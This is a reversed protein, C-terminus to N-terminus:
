TYPDTIERLSVLAERLQAARTTGLHATWEAEVEAVVAAAIPITQAGREAIQVLRARADTPDPVRRVDGAVNLARLRRVPKRSTAESM